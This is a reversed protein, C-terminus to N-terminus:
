RSGDKMKAMASMFATRLADFPLHSVGSRDYSPMAAEVSAYVAEMDQPLEHDVWTAYNGYGHDYNWDPVYYLRGTVGRADQAALFLMIPLVHEPIAPRLFYAMGQAQYARATDDFWSARTHGPMIANVAVGQGYVEEGLYFTLAMVAAKTAQYPMEVTGPRLGYYGGGISVPLVGSSVVNVISGRGKELMPRIFRRIAKVTGFVNVDFMTEWDSDKTDLTAVHGLPAFLTESVLAANNVLVDATGFRKLTDAYAADLQGNDSLDMTLAAGNGSKELEARFEDAGAWTKDAAVVKAGAKLMAQAIAKGIGRAGGTVVVVRGAIDRGSQAFARELLEKQRRKVAAVDVPRDTM